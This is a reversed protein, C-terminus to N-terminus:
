RWSRTRTATAVGSTRTASGAVLTVDREAATEQEPDRSLGPEHEVHLDALVQPHGDRGGRQRREGARRDQEVERRGVDRNALGVVPAQEDLALRGAAEGRVQIGGGAEALRGRIEGPVAMGEDVLVAGAEGFGVAEAVLGLEGAAVDVELSERLVAQPLRAEAVRDLTV